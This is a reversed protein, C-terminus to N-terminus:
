GINRQRRDLALARETWRHHNIDPGDERFHYRADGTKPSGFTRLGQHMPNLMWAVFSLSIGSTPRSEIEMHTISMLNDLRMNRPLPKIKHVFHAYVRSVM